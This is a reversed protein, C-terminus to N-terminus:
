YLEERRTKAYQRSFEHEVKGLERYFEYCIKFELPAEILLTNSQSDYSVAKSSDTFFISGDVMHIKSILVIIDFKNDIANVLNEIRNRELYFSSSNLTNGFRFQLARYEENFILVKYNGVSYEKYYQAMERLFDVLEPTVRLEFIPFSVIEVDPDYTLQFPPVESTFELGFDIARRLNSIELLSLREKATLYPTEIIIEAEKENPYIVSSVNFNCTSRYLMLEYQLEPPLMELYTGETEPFPFMEERSLMTKLHTNKRVSSSGIEYQLLISSYFFLLISSHYLM